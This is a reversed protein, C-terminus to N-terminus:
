VITLKKRNSLNNEIKLYLQMWSVTRVWKVHGKRSIKLVEYCQFNQEGVFLKNAFKDQNSFNYDGSTSEEIEPLLHAVGFLNGLSSTKLFAQRQAHTMIESSGARIEDSSM